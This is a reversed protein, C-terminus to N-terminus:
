EYRQGRHEIWGGERWNKPDHHTWHICGGRDNYEYEGKFRVTDGERVPVRGFKTNHAIKITVDCDAVEVLFQQHQGTGDSTDTDEPLIKVVVGAATIIRDSTRSRFLDAIEASAPSSGSAPPSARSPSDPAPRRGLLAKILKLLMQALAVWAAAQGPSNKRTPGPM